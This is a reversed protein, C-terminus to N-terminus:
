HTREAKTGALLLLRSLTERETKLAALARQVRTQAARLQDAYDADATPPFNLLRHLAEM